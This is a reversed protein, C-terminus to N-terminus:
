IEDRYQLDDLQAPTTPTRSRSLACEGARSERPELTLKSACTERDDRVSLRDRMRLSDPM